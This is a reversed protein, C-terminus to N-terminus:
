AKRAELQKSLYVIQGLHYSTHDAALFIERLITQGDGWPITSYLNTEPDRVLEQFAELDAHLASVTQDWSEDSPPVKAKPWYEEPWKPALYHSNTCFDLLDHLTFRIHELLQWANHPAGEPKLGRKDSPFDALAAGTMVHASGGNLLEVLQERLVSDDNPM